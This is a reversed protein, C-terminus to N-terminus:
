MREAELRRTGTEQKSIVFHKSNTERRKFKGTLLIHEEDLRPSLYYLFSELSCITGSNQEFNELSKGDRMQLLGLTRVKIQLAKRVEMDQVELACVEVM